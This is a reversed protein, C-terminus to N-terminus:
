HQKRGASCIPAYEVKKSKIGCKNLTSLMKVIEEQNLMFKKSEKHGSFSPVLVECFSIPIKEVDFLKKAREIEHLNCSLVVYNVTVNCEKKKFWKIWHFAKDFAGEYRTISDHTKATAGSISFRIKSVGIDALLSAIYNDFLTGNTTMTIEFGLKRSTKYVEKFYPYLLPEGGTFEIKYSGIEVLQYLISYIQQFSLFCDAKKRDVGLYCYICDQNCHNTLILTANYPIFNNRIKNFLEDKMSTNRAM